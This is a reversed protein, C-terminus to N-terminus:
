EQNQKHRIMDSVLKEQAQQFNLGAFGSPQSESRAPTVSSRQGNTKLTVKTRQPKKAETKAAPIESDVEELADIPPGGEDPLPTMVTSYGPTRYAPNHKGMFNSLAKRLREADDVIESGKENYTRANWIMRKFYSELLSMTGFERRTM